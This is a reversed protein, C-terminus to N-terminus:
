KLKIDGNFIANIWKHLGEESTKAMDMIQKHRADSEEKLKKNEERLRINEYYICRLTDMMDFFEEIDM